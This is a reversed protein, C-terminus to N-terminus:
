STLGFAKRLASKSRAGVVTTVPQGDRFLIVTPVALVQLDRMIRPNADADVTAVTLEDAHEVAIEALVPTLMRCPGCWTAWFELLVPKNGRLVLEDFTDDTVPITVDTPVPM